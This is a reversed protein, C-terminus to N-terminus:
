GENKIGRKLKLKYKNDGLNEISNINYNEDKDIKKIIEMDNIIVSSERENFEGEIDYKTIEMWNILDDKLSLEKQIVVPALSVKTKNNESITNIVVPLILINIAILLFIGRKEGKDKLNTKNKIFSNPVFGKNKSLASM